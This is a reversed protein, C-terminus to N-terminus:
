FCVRFMIISLFEWLYESLIKYIYICTSDNVSQAQRVYEKARGVIFNVSM